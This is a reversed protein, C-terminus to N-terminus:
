RARSDSLTPTSAATALYQSWVRFFSQVRGFLFPGLLSDEELFNEEVEDEESEDESEEESEASLVAGQETPEALGCGPIMLFSRARAM